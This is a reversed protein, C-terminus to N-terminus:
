GKGKDQALKWGRFMGIVETVRSFESQKESNSPVNSLSLLGSPLMQSGDVGGECTIKLLINSNAETTLTLDQGSNM